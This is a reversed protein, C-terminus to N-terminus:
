LFAGISSIFKLICYKCGECALCNPDLDLDLDLDLPSLSTESGGCQHPTALPSGREQAHLLGAPGEPQSPLYPVVLSSNQM